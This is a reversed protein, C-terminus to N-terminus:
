VSSVNQKNTLITETTKDSVNRNITTKEENRNEMGISRSYKRFVCKNNSIEVFVFKYIFQYINSDIVNQCQM